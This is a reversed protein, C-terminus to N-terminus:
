KVQIDPMVKRPQLLPKDKPPELVISPNSKNMIEQGITGSGCKPCASFMASHKEGCSKCFTSKAILANRPDSEKIQAKSLDVTSENQLPIIDEQGKRIRSEFIAQKHATSKEM